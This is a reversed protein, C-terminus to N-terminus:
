LKSNLAVDLTELIALEVLIRWTGDRGGVPEQHLFTDLFLLKVEETEPMEVIKLV